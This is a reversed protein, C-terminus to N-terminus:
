TVPLVRYEGTGFGLSVRFWAEWLRGRTNVLLGRLIHSFEWDEWETQSLCQALLITCTSFTVTVLGSSRPADELGVHSSLVLEM